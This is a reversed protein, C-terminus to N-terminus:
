GEVIHGRAIVQAWGRSCKTTERKAGGFTQKRMRGIKLVWFRPEVCTLDVTWFGYSGVTRNDGECKLVECKRSTPPDSV